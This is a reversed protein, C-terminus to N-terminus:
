GDVDFACRRSVWRGAAPRRASDTPGPEETGTPIRMARFTRERSHFVLHRKPKWDRKSSGPLYHSRSFASRRLGSGTLRDENTGFVTSRRNGKTSAPSPCQSHAAERTRIDQVAADSTGDPVHTTMTILYGM